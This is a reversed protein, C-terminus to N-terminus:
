EAFMEKVETVKNLLKTNWIEKLEGTKTPIDNTGLYNYGGLWMRVDALSLKGKKFEAFLRKCLYQYV